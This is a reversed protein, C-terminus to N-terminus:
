NANARYRGFPETHRSEVIISSLSDGFVTPMMPLPQEVTIVVEVSSGSVFCQPECRRTVQADAIGHDALTVDAAHRWRREATALDPSQVFARTAALSAATVGFSARQVQFVAVLVYLLPVIVVLTLMTFEILASGTEDRQTM